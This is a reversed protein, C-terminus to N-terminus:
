GFDRNKQDFGKRALGGGRVCIIDCVGICGVPVDHGPCAVAVHPVKLCADAGGGLEDDAGVGVDDQGEATPRNLM